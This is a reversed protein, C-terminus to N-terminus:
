KLSPWEEQIYEKSTDLLITGSGHTAYERIKDALPTTSLDCICFDALDIMNAIIGLNEGATSQDRTVRIIANCPGCCDKPEGESEINIEKDTVGILFLKSLDTKSRRLVYTFATHTLAQEIYCKQVSFSSTLVSVIHEIRCLAEYTPEGLSFVSCSVRQKKELQHLLCNYRSIMNWHLIKRGDHLLQIARKRTIKLEKAIEGIDHNAIQSQYIERKRDPLLAINEIIAQETESNILSIIKLSPTKRALELFRNESEFFVEYLGSILHTSNLIMWRMLRASSVPAEQGAKRGSTMPPIYVKDFMCYPFNTQEEELYRQHNEENLILTITVNQPRRARANLAAELCYDYFGGRLHVLFNVNENEAILQDVATQVLSSIDVDYIRFEDGLFSCIVM